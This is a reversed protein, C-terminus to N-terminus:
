EEILQAFAADEDDASTAWPANRDDDPEFVADLEADLDSGAARARPPEEKPEPEAVAIPEAAPAPEDPRSRGSPTAGAPRVGEAVRAPEPSPSASAAAAELSVERGGSEGGLERHAREVDAPSVRERGALSAEFLANDALRNIRGPLGGALQVLARRAEPEFVADPDGGAAKMRHSVYGAADEAGLPALAVRAELAGELEPDGRLSEDLAPTGSLVVTLLRRDEYELKLLSVVPALAEVGGLDQADDVLLVAHRGDERVIALREYIEGLLEHRDAPPSEVGLQRAYSALVSAADAVGRLVVVMSADFVEEELGDLLRRLLTTKGAGTPGTVVCLGRRMRVARDLRRWADGSARADFHLRPLPEGQFPDDALGFRHLHDV